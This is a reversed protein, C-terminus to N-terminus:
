KGALLYFIIIIGITIIIIIIIIIIYQRGYPALVWEVTFEVSISRSILSIVVERRLRHRAEEEETEERM